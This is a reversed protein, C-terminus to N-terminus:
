RTLNNQEIISTRLWTGSELAAWDVATKSDIIVPFADFRRVLKAIQEPTWASSALSGVITKGCGVQMEVAPITIQVSRVHDTSIDMLDDFTYGYSFAKTLNLHIGFRPDGACRIAERIDGLSNFNSNSGNEISVLCDHSSKGSLEVLSMGLRMATNIDPTPCYSPEVVIAACASREGWAMLKTVYAHSANLGERAPSALNCSQVSRLGLWASDTYNRVARMDGTRQSQCLVASPGDYLM